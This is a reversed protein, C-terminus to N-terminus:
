GPGGSAPRGAAGRWGKEQLIADRALNIKLQEAEDGSARMSRSRVLAELDDRQINSSIGFFEYPNVPAPGSTPGPLALYAERMMDGIGRAENNRMSDFALYCARLNKAYTPQDSCHLTVPFGRLSFRLTADKGGIESPAPTDWKDVAVAPIGRGKYRNWLEVAKAIDKQTQTATKDSDLVRTATM